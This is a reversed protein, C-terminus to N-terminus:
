PMQGKRVYDIIDQMARKLGKGDIDVGGESQGCPEEGFTPDYRQLMRNIAEYYDNTHMRRHYHKDLWLGNSDFDTPDLNCKWFVWRAYRARRDGAAVVHHAEKGAITERNGAAVQEGRTRFAKRRSSSKSRAETDEFSPPDDGVSTFNIDYDPGHPSWDYYAQNEKWFYRAGGYLGAAAVPCWEICAILPIQFQASHASPSDSPVHLSKTASASLNGARDYSRVEVAVTDGADASTLTFSDSDGTMWSTWSSGARQYRYTSRTEDVETGPVGASVDPDDGESWAIGVTRASNDADFTQIGFPAAPAATDIRPAWTGFYPDDSETLMYNKDDTSLGNWVAQYGAGALLGGVTVSESGTNVKHDYGGYIWSTDSRVQITIPATQNVHGVYDYTSAQITHTGPTTIPLTVDRTVSCSDTACQSAPNSYNWMAKGDLALGIVHIGSSLSADDGDTAVVRLTPNYGLTGDSRHDWADGGFGVFPLSGDVKVTWAPGFTANDTIDIAVTRMTAIGNFNALSLSGNFTADLPCPASRNGNCNIHLASNGIWNNGMTMIGVHQLGLGIDGGVVSASLVEASSLWSTQNVATAGWSTNLKDLRVGPPTPDGVRINVGRVGAWGHVPHQVTQDEYVGIIAAAGTEQRDPIATYQDYGDDGFIEHVDTWRGAGWTGFYMHDGETVHYLGDFWTNLISVYPPSTWSFNASQNQYYFGPPSDIWLGRGALVSNYPVFPGNNYMSWLGAQNQTPGKGFYDWDSQGWVEHVEPDVMVPYRVQQSRHPVDVVMRDGDLRYSAPVPQGDADIAMPAAITDLVTGDDRVIELSAPADASGAALSATLGSSLRAHVGDPLGLDLSPEETAEPSRLQWLVQAGGPRAMTIYDTDTAVDGYFVRDDDVRGVVDAAGTMSLDLGTDPLQLADGASDPLAVDVAPNDPVLKGGEASLSLDVAALENGADEDPAALPQSGIVLSQKGEDNKVRVVDEGLFSQVHLGEPLDLGDLPAIMLEPFTQQALEAAQSHSLEDFATRSDERADGAIPSALRQEEAARAALGEAEQQLWRPDSTLKAQDVPAVTADWPSRAAVSGAPLAVALGTFVAGLATLALVLVFAPAFRCRAFRM